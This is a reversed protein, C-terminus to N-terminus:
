PEGFVVGIDIYGSLYWQYLIKKTENNSAEGVYIKQENALKILHQYTGNDVEFVEGNLFILSNKGYLMRSKLNLQAGNKLIEKAFQQQTLPLEPSDFFVHAKPETLYVGLFKEIEIQGWKIEKLIAKVQRVMFQTIEAPQSQLQLDPDTYWGNVQLHDQQYVLFQTILEQCSPARFGISYTMCDEEAIGNHAYNPPLYLLDGPQLLWEQEPEFNRLIKLPADEIFSTDNQPSIQWRRSGQGQLLFVDYSDVHPGIGGGKPAYSVMLDDLRAYPIFDFKLLLDRASPLYHNVEQVLLSWNKKSLHDFDDQLFPGHELLWKKRKYTVLRSQVDDDCALEILEEQTLLGEFEPIANRVLLPKKQWYDRLFSEASLGGLLKKNLALDNM